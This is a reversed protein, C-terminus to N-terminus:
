KKNGGSQFQQIYLPELSDIDDGGNRLRNFVPKIFDSIGITFQDPTIIKIEPYDENELVCDIGYIQDLNCLSSVDSKKAIRITKNEFLSGAIEALYFEDRRSPILVCTPGYLSFLPEALASFVAVGALPIDLSTALAKASSMGVRLGTFSGPGISVVIGNIQTSSIDAENLVNEILPFIFEAHKFRDSNQKAITKNRDM